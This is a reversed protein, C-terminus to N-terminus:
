DDVGGAFQLLYKIFGKYDIISLNYNGKDAKTIKFLGKKSLGKPNNWGMNTLLYYLLEQKSSILLKQFINNFHTNVTCRQIGMKEAIYASPNYLGKSELFWQCVEVERKSLDNAQM